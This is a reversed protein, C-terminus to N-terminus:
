FVFWPVAESLPIDKRYEQNLTSLPYESSRTSRNGSALYFTQGESHLVKMTAALDSIGCCPKSGTREMNKGETANSYCGLAKSDTCVLKYATPLSVNQSDIIRNMLTALFLIYELVEGLRLGNFRGIAELQNYSFGTLPIRGAEFSLLINTGCYRNFDKPLSPSYIPVNFEEIPSKLAIKLNKRFEREKDNNGSYKLIRKYSNDTSKPVLISKIKSITSMGSEPLFVSFRKLCETTYEDSFNEPFEAELLAKLMEPIVSKSTAKPQDNEDFHVFFEHGNLVYRSEENLIDFIKDTLSGVFMRGVYDGLVNEIANRSLM